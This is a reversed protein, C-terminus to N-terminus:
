YRRSRREIDLRFRFKEPHELYLHYLRVDLIWDGYQSKAMNHAGYKYQVGDYFVSGCHLYTHFDYLSVKM